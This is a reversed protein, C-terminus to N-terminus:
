IFLLSVRLVLWIIARIFIVVILLLTFLLCFGTLSPVWLPSAFNMRFLETSPIAANISDTIGESSPYKALEAMMCDVYAYTGWGNAQALPTCVNYALQYVGGNVSDLAAQADAIAQEAARNYQNELYFPGTGFTIRQQGNEETVNIVIHSFTYDRLEDLATAVATDDGSADAALVADRLETMHIHNLRLLTADVFCMAVLLLLLVWTKIKRFKLKKLKFRQKKSQESKPHGRKQM